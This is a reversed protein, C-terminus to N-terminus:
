DGRPHHDDVHLHVHPLAELLRGIGEDTVKTRDLYLSELTKLSHLQDLGADTIPMDLLHLFRLQTLDKLSALGRDTVRPSALRLQELNSMRCLQALGADTIQTRSFNVRDLKSELGDLVSLDSDQVLTHALRLQNSEGARVARAQETLGPETPTPDDDDAPSSRVCGASLVVATLAALLAVGVTTTM